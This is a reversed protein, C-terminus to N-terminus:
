MGSYSHLGSGFLNIGVFNLIFMAFALLAVYAALRGRWGIAARARLYAAYVVWTIFAWVEEPGLGLLPGPRM